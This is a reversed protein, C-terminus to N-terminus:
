ESKIFAEAIIDGDENKSVTVKGFIELGKEEIFSAVAREIDIKNLILRMEEGERRIFGNGMCRWHYLSCGNIFVVRCVNVEGGKKRKGSSFTIVSM